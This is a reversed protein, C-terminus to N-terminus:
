LRILDSIAGVEYSSASLHAVRLSRLGARFAAMHPTQFHATLASADQWRESLWLRGTESIDQGFAYHLCGAEKRTEQAMAAALATMAAVDDQHVDIQGFVILM